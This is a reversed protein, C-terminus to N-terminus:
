SSGFFAQRLEVMGSGTYAYLNLSTNVQEGFEDIFGGCKYLEEYVRLADDLKDFSLFREAIQIRYALVRIYNMIM